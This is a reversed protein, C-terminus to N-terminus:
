GSFEQHGIKNLFDRYHGFEEMGAAFGQYELGMAIMGEAKPSPGIWCVKADVVLQTQRHDDLDFAISITEGLVFNGKGEVRMGTESLDLSTGQFEEFKASRVRLHRPHRFKVRKEEHSFVEQLLPVVEQPQVWFARCEELGSEIVQIQGRVEVGEITARVNALGLDLPVESQFVIESDEYGTVTIVKPVGFLDKLFEFM